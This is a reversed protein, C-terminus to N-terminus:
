AQGRMNRLVFQDFRRRPCRPMSPRAGSAAAYADTFRMGRRALKDINPTEHLDSGYCGVDAWGLDDALIFVFNPRPSSEKTDGRVGAALAIDATFWATYKLFNRRTLSDAMNKVGHDTNYWSNM